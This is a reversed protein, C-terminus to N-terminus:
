VFSCKFLRKLACYLCFILFFQRGYHFAGVNWLQHISHLEQDFAGDAPGCAKPKAKVSQTAPPGLWWLQM